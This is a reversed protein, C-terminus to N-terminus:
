TQTKYAAPVNYSRLSTRPFSSLATSYAVSVREYLTTYSRTVDLKIRVLEHVKEYKKFFIILGDHNHPLMHKTHRYHRSHPPTLERKWVTPMVPMSFMHQWM